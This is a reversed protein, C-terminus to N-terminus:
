RPRTAHHVGIATEVAARADADTTRHGNAVMRGSHFASWGFGNGYAPFARGHYDGIDLTGEQSEPIGPRSVGPKWEATYTLEM